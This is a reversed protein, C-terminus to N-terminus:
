RPPNVEDLLSVVVRLSALIRFWFEVGVVVKKIRPVLIRQLPPSKYCGWIRLRDNLHNSQRTMM